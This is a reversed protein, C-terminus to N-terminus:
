LSEIDSIAQHLYAMAGKRISEADVRKMFYENCVFAFDLQGQYTSTIITTPNAFPGIVTPGFLTDVSFTTYDAPIQLRGMNSFMLDNGARGYTLVKLMSNLEPHLSEMVMLFDYPKLSAIQKDADAQLLRVGKWFELKYAKSLQMKLVLGFSFLSEKPLHSLFRRIDVPCTLQGHARSGRVAKFAKLFALCLTTNVTVGQASCAAFLRASENEPLKWHILYDHTRSYRPKNRRSTAAAALWLGARMLKGLLAIRIQFKRNDRVTGPIIDELMSLGQQPGIDAGPNDLLRLLERILVIGGGGDCICHHFTLVLDGGQEDALVTLRVMPAEEPGFTVGWAARVENQWADRSIRGLLRFPIDACEEAVDFRPKGSPIIRARLVAHRRQLQRLAGQWDLNTLDGKLRLAFVGNFAEKGDGYLVRELFLLERGAM